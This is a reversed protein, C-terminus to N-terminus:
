RLDCIQFADKCSMRCTLMRVGERGRGRAMTIEARSASPRKNALTFSGVHGALNGGLLPGEQRKRSWIAAYDTATWKGNWGVGERRVRRATRKAAERRRRPWATDMEHKV